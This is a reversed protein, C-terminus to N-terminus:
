FNIGLVSTGNYNIRISSKRTLILVTSYLIISRREPISVTNTVDRGVPEANFNLLLEVIKFVSVGPDWTTADRRM